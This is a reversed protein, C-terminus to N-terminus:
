AKKKPASVYAIFEIHSPAFGHTWNKLTEDVLWEYEQHKFTFDAAEEELVVTADRVRWENAAYNAVFVYDPDNKVTEEVMALHALRDKETLSEDIGEARIRILGCYGWGPLNALETRVRQRLAEAVGEKTKLATPTRIVLAIYEHDKPCGPTTTPTGPAAALAPAAVTLAAIGTLTSIATRRDM